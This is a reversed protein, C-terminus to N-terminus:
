EDWEMDLYIANGVADFRVFEYTRNDHVLKRGYHDYAPIVPMGKLGHRQYELTSNQTIHKKGFFLINNM